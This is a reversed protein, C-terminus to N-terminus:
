PAVTFAFDGETVHTDVSVVRWRVRYRGPGLPALSATLLAPNAADVGADARDM